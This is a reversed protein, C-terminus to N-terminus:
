HLVNCANSTFHCAPRLTQHRDDELSLSHYHSQPGSRHRSFPTYNEVYWMCCMDNFPIKAYSMSLNTCQVM